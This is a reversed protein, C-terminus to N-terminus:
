EDDNLWLAIVDVDYRELIPDATMLRLGNTRAQAVLLRDFPDHHHHPLDGVACTDRVTIALQSIGAAALTKNVFEYPRDPLELNGKAWKIAIELSSVASFFVTENPDSLMARAAPSLRRNEEVAWIFVHTDLLISM